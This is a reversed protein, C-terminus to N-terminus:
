RKEWANIINDPMVPSWLIEQLLLNVEVDRQKVTEM